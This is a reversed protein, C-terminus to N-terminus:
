GPFDLEINWVVPVPKGERTAPEYNWCRVAKVAEEDLGGGLHQKVVIAVTCGNPAVIVSLVVKGKIGARRAEETYKPKVYSVLRPATVSGGVKFVGAGMGGGRMCSCRCKLTSRCPEASNSQALSLSDISLVTLLTFLVAVLRM